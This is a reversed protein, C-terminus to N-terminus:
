EVTVWRDSEAAEYIAEMAHMDVLGHDGDPYLPADGRLRDAFYDFEELMQDVKELEVTARGDGRSVHLKRPQDQFFAPEVRVQGETGTVTIGSSQRANHSAYCQAYVEHPFEASFAVTEDVDDFADHTSSVNGTVAVPDADLLFRATNLPYLGIDFLAGGGALWEDLRWQDPDPDIRELLRQSMDGTVSMPEGVYGSAVLDRARRVAPETHMRYAVMLEVGGEAAVDRLEAARDSDREMPKECLVDKGLEAATEVYELHLANPTVIYAADYADSEDGDHFEEYTIGREAGATEAALDSAKERDSSVLVSPRCRESAELAPLARGKTFWGLGIVAFRVPEVASPEVTEWDRACSEEVIASLDM